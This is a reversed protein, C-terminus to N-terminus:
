RDRSRFTSSLFKLYGPIIAAVGLGSLLSVPVCAVFALIKVTTSASDPVLAAALAVAVTVPFLTLTLITVAAGALATSAGQVRQAYSNLGDTVEAFLDDMGHQDRMARLVVNVTEEESINHWWVAAKFRGFVLELDRLTDVNANRSAVSAMRDALANLGARQLLGLLVSDALTTHVNWQVHAVPGVTSDGSLQVDSSEEGSQDLWSAFPLSEGPTLADTVVVGIGGHTVLVAVDRTPEILHRDAALRDLTGDAPEDTDRMTAVQWALVARTKDYAPRPSLDSRVQRGREPRDIVFILHFRHGQAIVTLHELAADVTARIHLSLGGRALAEPDLQGHVILVHTSSSPGRPSTTPLPIIELILRGSVTWRRVSDDYIASRVRPSLFRVSDIQGAVKTSAGPYRFPAPGATWGSTRNTAEPGVEVFAVFSGGLVDYPTM